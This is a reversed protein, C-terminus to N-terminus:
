YAGAGAMIAAKLAADAPAPTVSYVIRDAPFTGRTIVLPLPTGLSLNGRAAVSTSVTDAYRDIIGHEHNAELVNNEALLHTEIAAAVGYEVWHSVYNNWMHVTAFSIRPNRADVGDFWNHHMSIRMTRDEVETDSSGILISKKNPTTFRNWSLTIGTNGGRGAIQNRLGLGQGTEGVSNNKFTCHDIWVDHSGFDVNIANRDPITDEFTLDHLIVNRVATEEGTWVVVSYGAIRIQAGSGDVTVDGSNTYVVNELAITGTLGPAFTIVRAGGRDALAERLTGPGSDALSTVVFSRGGFGGNVGAAAAFGLVGDQWPGEVPAADVGSDTGSAEGDGASADAAGPAADSGPAGGSSSSTSADNGLEAPTGPESSCAAALVLTFFPAALLSKMPALM